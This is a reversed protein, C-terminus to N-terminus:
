LMQNPLPASCGIAFTGSRSVARLITAPVRPLARPVITSPWKTGSSAKLDCHSRRDM